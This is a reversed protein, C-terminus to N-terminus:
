RGTLLGQALRKKKNAMASVRIIAMEWQLFTQIAVFIDKAYM